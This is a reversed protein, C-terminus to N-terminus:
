RTVPKIRHRGGRGSRVWGHATLLDHAPIPQAPADDDFEFVRQMAVPQQDYYHARIDGPGFVPEGTPPGFQDLISTM